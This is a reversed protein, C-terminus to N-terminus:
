PAGRVARLYYGYGLIAEGSDFDVPGDALAALPPVFRMVTGALGCDVTAPGRLPGTRVTWSQVAEEVDAGLSGLATAM